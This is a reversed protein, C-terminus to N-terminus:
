EERPKRKRPSSVGHKPSPLKQTGESFRIQKKHPGKVDAEIESRKRRALGALVGKIDAFREKMIKNREAKYSHSKDALAKESLTLNELDDNYERFIGTQLGLLELNELMETEFPFDSCIATLRIDHIIEKQTQTYQVGAKNSYIDKLLEDIETWKKKLSRNEEEIKNTTDMLDKEMENVASKLYVVKFHQLAILVNQIVPRNDRDIDKMGSLLSKIEEKLNEDLIEEAIRLDDDLMVGLAYIDSAKSYVGIAKENEDFQDSDSSSEEAIYLGTGIDPKDLVMGQDGLPTLTGLDILTAQLIEKDLLFNEPKIDRHIYNHNHFRTKTDEVASIAIKLKDLPSFGEDGAHLLLNLPEGQGLKTFIYGKQKDVGEVFASGLAYDVEEGMRTETEIMSRWEKDNMEKNKESNRDFIKIAVWEGTKFNQGLKVRAFAGSGLEREGKGPDQEEALRDAKGTYLVYANKGQSEILVSYNLQLERGSKLKLTERRSLKVNGQKGKKLHEVLYQELFEGEQANLLREEGKAQIGLDSQKIKKHLREKEKGAM